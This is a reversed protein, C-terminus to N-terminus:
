ALLGLGSSVGSQFSAFPYCGPPPVTRSERPVVIPQQAASPYYYPSLSCHTQHSSKSPCSALGQTTSVILHFCIKSAITRGKEAESPTHSIHDTVYNDGGVHNITPNTNQKLHTCGMRYDNLVSLFKSLVTAETVDTVCCV